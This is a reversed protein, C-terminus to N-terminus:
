TDSPFLTLLETRQSIEQASARMRGLILTAAFERDRLNGTESSLIRLSRASVLLPAVLALAIAAIALALRVRLTM